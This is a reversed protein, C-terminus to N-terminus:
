HIRALGSKKRSVARGIRVCPLDGRRILRRVYPSVLCLRAAAQDVTLLQEDHIIQTQTNM